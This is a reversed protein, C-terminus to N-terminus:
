GDRSRGARWDTVVYYLAPIAFGAYLAWALAPLAFDPRWVGILLVAAVATMTVAYGLRVTRARLDRVFEDNLIAHIQRSFGGPGFAMVMASLLIVFAVMAAFLLVFPRDPTSAKPLATSFAAVCGVSSFLSSVITWRWSRHHADIRLRVIRPDSADVPPAYRRAFRVFAILFATGFAIAIVIQVTQSQLFAVHGSFFAGAFVLVMMVVMGLGAFFMRVAAGESANLQAVIEDDTPETM